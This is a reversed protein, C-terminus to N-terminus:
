YETTNKKKLYPFNAYPLVFVKRSVESNLTPFLKTLPSCLILM